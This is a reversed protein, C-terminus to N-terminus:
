PRPGRRAAGVVELRHGRQPRQDRHRRLHRGEHRLGGPGELPRQRGEGPPGCFVELLRWLVLLFMGVAIAWVLVEGYPQQALEQMAGKSSAKESRDGFALQLALWGILLHVVGYCILGARIAKDLWESNQAREGMQEATSGARDTMEGM